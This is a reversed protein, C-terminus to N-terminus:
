VTHDLVESSNSLNYESDVSYDGIGISEQGGYGGGGGVIGDQVKLSAKKVM